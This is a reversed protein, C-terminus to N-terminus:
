GDARVDMAALTKEIEALAHAVVDTATMSAVRPRHQDIAEPGLATLTFGRGRRRLEGAFGTTAPSFPAVVGADAIAYL